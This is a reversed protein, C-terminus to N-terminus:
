SLSRNSEPQPMKVDPDDSTIRSVLVSNELDGPAIVAYGDRPAFPGLKPDLTDLRMDAKRRNADPGHCMFCKDALIPQIDRTFDVTRRATSTAPGAARALGCAALACGWVTLVIVERWKM